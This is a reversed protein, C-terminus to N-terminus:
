SQRKAAAHQRSAVDDMFKRDRLAMANMHDKQDKEKLKELVKRKKVAAILASRKQSVHREAGAVRKQQADIDRELRALYPGYLQVAPARFSQRQTRQLEQMCRRRTGRKDRLAAQEAALARRAEALEKQHVEEANRRTNLVTEFRFKFM